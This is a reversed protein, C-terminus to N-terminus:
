QAQVHFVFLQRQNIDCATKSKYRDACNHWAAYGRTLHRLRDLYVGVKLGNDIDGLVRSAEIDFVAVAGDHLSLATGVSHALPRFWVATCWYSTPLPWGSATTEM